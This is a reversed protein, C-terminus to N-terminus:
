VPVCVCQHQCALLITFLASTLKSFVFNGKIILNRIDGPPTKSISSSIYVKVDHFEMPETNIVKQVEKNDMEVKYVYGDTTNFQRVNVKVWRNLESYIPAASEYKYNSNNNVPSSVQLVMNGSSYIFFTTALRSGYKPYQGTTIHLANYWGNAPSGTLKYEYEVAYEKTFTSMTAMLKNRTIPIEASILNNICGLLSFHYKIFSKYTEFKDLPNRYAASIM